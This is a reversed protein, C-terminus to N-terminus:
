LSSIISGGAKGDGVSGPLSPERVRICTRVKPHSGALPNMEPYYAGIECFALPHLDAPKNWACSVCMFGEVKNQRRLTDLVAPM